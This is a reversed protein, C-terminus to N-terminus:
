SQPTPNALEEEIQKDIAALRKACDKEVEHRLAQLARLKTSYLAKPQQSNGGVKSMESYGWRHHTSSSACPEVRNTFVNFHFGTTDPENQNPVAVDPAVPQPWSLAKALRLEQQLQEFAASEKKNMTPPQFNPTNKLQM